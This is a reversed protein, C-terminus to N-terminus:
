ELCSAGRVFELPTPTDGSVIEDVRTQGFKEVFCAEQEPTIETPVNAPDIGITRLAKEQGETLPLPSEDYADNAVEVEQTKPAAIDVMGPVTAIGKSFLYGWALLLLLFIVGLIIFFVSFFKKM